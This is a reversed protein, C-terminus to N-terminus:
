MRENTIRLTSSPGMTSRTPSAAAIRIPVTSNTSPRSRYGMGRERHPSGAAGGGGGGGGGGGRGGVGGGRGRGGAGGGRGGGMGRERHPSAATIGSTGIPAASSKGAVVDSMDRYESGRSSPVVM